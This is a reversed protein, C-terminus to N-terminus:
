PAVCGAVVARMDLAIDRWRLAQAVALRVDHEANGTWVIPPLSKPIAEYAARDVCPISVPVKVTVTEVRVGPKACASLLLALCLVRIM